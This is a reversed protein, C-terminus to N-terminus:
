LTGKKHTVPKDFCIEDSDYSSIQKEAMLSKKKNNWDAFYM